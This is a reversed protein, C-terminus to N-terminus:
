AAQPKRGSYYVACALEEINKESFNDQWRLSFPNSHAEALIEAVTANSFAERDEPSLMESWRRLVWELTFMPGQWRHVGVKQLEFAEMVKSIGRTTMNFYHHPFAHYPQLFATEVYIEGGPKMARYLNEACVFPQQVHEFVAGSIVGAFVGDRFPLQEGSGVVDVHTMAFVDMKVINEASEPNNGSGFDLVPHPAARQAVDRWQGTYPNGIVVEDAFSIGDEARPLMIPTGNHVVYSKGCGCCVIEQESALRLEVGNCAICKLLPLIFNELRQLKNQM